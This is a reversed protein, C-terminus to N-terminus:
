SGVVFREFGGDCFTETAALGDHAVDLRLQAVKELAPAASADKAGDVPDDALVLDAVGLVSQPIRPGHKLKCKRNQVRACGGSEGSSLDWLVFSISVSPVSVQDSFALLFDEFFHGAAGFAEGLLEFAGLLRPRQLSFELVVHLTYGGRSM